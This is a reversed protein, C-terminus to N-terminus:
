WKGTKNTNFDKIGRWMAKIMDRKGQAFWILTWCLRNLIFYAYFIVFKTRMHTRNCMPWNRSIYYANAPNGNGGTSGNVKHYVIANGCYSIHIGYKGARMSYETDEYYLFFREDLLGIKSIINDSLLMCCGNAFTCKDNKDFQGEDKQGAGRHRTKEIISSFSGGACWIVGPQDAYLIKPVVINGTEMQINVMREIANKEIVTDNNLLMIYQYGQSLAWKIGENNAKSFGYNSDLCILHVSANDAYLEKLLKMSDDASANDVVVIDTKEAYTSNLISKICADNYKRGNYNVLIVCVKDGM